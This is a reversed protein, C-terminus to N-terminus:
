VRSVHVSFQQLLWPVLVTLYFHFKSSPGKIMFIADVLSQAGLQLMCLKSLPLTHSIIQRTMLCEVDGEEKEQKEDDKDCNNDHIM